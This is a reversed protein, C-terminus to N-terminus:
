ACLDGRLRNAFFSLDDVIVGCRRPRHIHIHRPAQIDPIDQSKM